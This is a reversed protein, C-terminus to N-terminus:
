EDAADSTYLLCTLLKDRREIPCAQTIENRHYFREATRVRWAMLRAPAKTKLGFRGLRNPRFVFAGALQLVFAYM